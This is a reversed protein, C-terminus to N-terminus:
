EDIRLYEMRFFTADVPTKKIDNRGYTIFHGNFTTNVVGVQYTRSDNPRIISSGIGRHQPQSVSAGTYDRDFADTIAEVQKSTIAKGGASGELLQPSLYNMHFPQEVSSHNTVHYTEYIYYADQLTGEVQRREVPLQHQYKHTSQSGLRSVINKPEDKLLLPEHHITKIIELSNQTYHIVTENEEVTKSTIHNTVYGNDTTKITFSHAGYTLLLPISVLLSAIIKM